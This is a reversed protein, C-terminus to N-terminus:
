GQDSHLKHITGYRRMFSVLCNAVTTAKRDPLPWLELWKTFYDQLVLIYLNGKESVPWPGSFDMACRELASGAIEQVLNYRGKGPGPKIRQCTDCSKLWDRIDISIGIWFYRQSALHHVREYGFHGGEPRGHLAKFIVHRLKYPVLRQVIRAESDRDAYVRSWLGNIM